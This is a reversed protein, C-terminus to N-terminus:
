PPGGGGEEPVGMLIKRWKDFPFYCLWCFLLLNITILLAGLTSNSTCSAAQSTCVVGAVHTLLSVVLLPAFTLLAGSAVLTDFAFYAGVFEACSVVLLWVPSAQSGWPQMVIAVSRVLAM